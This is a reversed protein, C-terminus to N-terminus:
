LNPTLAANRSDRSQYYLSVAVGNFVDDPIANYPDYDGGNQEILDRDIIYKCIMDQNLDIWTQMDKM